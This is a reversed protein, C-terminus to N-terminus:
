VAYWHPVFVLNKPRVAEPWEPCFKADRTSEAEQSNSASRLGSVENPVGEVMAMKPRGDRSLKGTLDDAMEEWRKVFPWYFDQYFDVKGGQPHKGFYGEKLVVAKEADRDWAWVGERAWICVDGSSLNVRDNWVNVGEPNVLQMGGVKTPQPWSRVYQPIQM